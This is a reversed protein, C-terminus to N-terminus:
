RHDAVGPQVSRVNSPGYGSVHVTADAGFPEEAWGAHRWRPSLGATAAMADLQMPTAYRLHWPRLRTGHETLHVHQGSITQADRDHQSISLVVEDATIHRPTVAGATAPGDDPPVFAELVFLGQPALLSAVRHLCQQQDDVSGLNFFTNFAVFVVSFVPPDVIELAAMDGQTVRLNAGGQKARLRDLMAASADIGHVEIGREALPIALRGSGIGLELVPGGGAEHALQALRNTCASVDTVDGYWDDYVDAFRDGYTSADYGEVEGTHRAGRRARRRGPLVTATSQAAGSTLVGTSGDAAGDRRGSTAGASRSPGEVAKSM